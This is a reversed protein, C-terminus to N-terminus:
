GPAARRATGQSTGRYESLEQIQQFGIMKIKEDKTVGIGTTTHLIRGTECSPYFASTEWTHVGQGETTEQTHVVETRPINREKRAQRKRQHM